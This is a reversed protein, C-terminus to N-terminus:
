VVILNAKKSCVDGFSGLVRCNYDGEDEQTVNVIELSVIKIDEDINTEGWQCRDTEKAWQDNKLWGFANLGMAPSLIKSSFKVNDGIYAVIDQPEELIAPRRISPNALLLCFSVYLLDIQILRPM